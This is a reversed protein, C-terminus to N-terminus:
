SWLPPPHNALGRQGPDQPKSPQPTTKPVDLLKGSVLRLILGERRLVLSGSLQTVLDERRADEFSCPLQDVPV